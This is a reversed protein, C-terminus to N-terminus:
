YKKTIDRLRVFAAREDEDKFGEESYTKLYSEILLNVREKVTEFEESEKVEDLTETITDAMRNWNFYEWAWDKVKNAKDESVERAKEYIQKFEEAYQNWERTNQITRLAKVVQGDYDKILEELTKM